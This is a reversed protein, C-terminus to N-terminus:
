AGDALEIRDRGLSKARYLAEDAAAVLLAADAMSERWSAVGISARVGIEIPPAAPPAFVVPEAALAARLKEAVAVAGSADTEPLLVLFEEGGYRILVDSERAVRGFRRATEALVADGAAHGYTDNVAKFRDLDIMLCALPRNNRRALAVLQSVHSGLQSRNLLGTLGDTAAEAALTDKVSKARLAARVRARLEEPDFPKTIYDVAGADLGSVRASTNAHATLFIVPPAGRGDSQIQRCIEYGDAGPMSVDLVLLDPETERALRLAELGDSARVVAYGDRQLLRAVLFLIDPDDDAILVQPVASEAAGDCLVALEHAASTM